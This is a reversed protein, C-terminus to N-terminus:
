SFMSEAMQNIFKIGIKTKVQGMELDDTAKKIMKIASIDDTIFNRDADAQGDAKAEQSVKTKGLVVIGM